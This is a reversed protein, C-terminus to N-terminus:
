TPPRSVKDFSVLKRHEDTTVVFTGAVGAHTVFPRLVTAPFQIWRGDRSLARVVHAAGRYWRELEAAAIELDITFTQMDSVLM